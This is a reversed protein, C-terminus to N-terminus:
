QPKVSAARDLMERMAQVASVKRYTSRMNATFHEETMGATVACSAAIRSLVTLVAAYMSASDEPTDESFPATIIDITRIIGEDMARMMDTVAKDKM